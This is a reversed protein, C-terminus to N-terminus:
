DLGLHGLNEAHRYAVLFEGTSLARAIDRHERARYVPRYQDMVNLRLPGIEERLWNMLPISCCEVHNPMVLHRVLLESQRAALAHNRSVVGFYGDVKSLRSACVDNGYKFDTLYVDVLGDLVALTRNTMFMNSNFVQPRPRKTELVRLVRLIFPVNPIPDGGVWNVNRSSFEERTIVDAV